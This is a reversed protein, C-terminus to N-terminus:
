ITLERTEGLLDAFYQCYEAGVEGSRRQRSCVKRAIAGGGPAADTLQGRGVDLKCGGGLVELALAGGRVTIHEGCGLSCRRRRRCQRPCPRCGGPSPLCAIPEDSPAGSQEVALRGLCMAHPKARDIGMRALVVLLRASCVGVGLPRQSPGARAIVGGNGDPLSRVKWPKARGQPRAPM